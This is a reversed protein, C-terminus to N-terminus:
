EGMRKVTGADPLVDGHVAGAVGTGCQEEGTTDRKGDDLM